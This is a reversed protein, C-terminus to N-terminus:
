RQEGRRRPPPQRNFMLRLERETAGDSSHLVFAGPSDGMVDEIMRAYFRDLLIRRVGPSERYIPLLQRLTEADARATRVLREAYGRAIAEVEAAAAEAGHEIRRQETMGERILTNRRSHAEQARDFAAQVAGPESPNKIREAEIAEVTLLEVGLPHGAEERFRELRSHLELEIRPFLERRNLVDTVRMGGVVKSTAARLMHRLVAESDEVGFRYALVSELDVPVAYRARLKMHVINMDGTLLYGDQRLDLSRVARVSGDEGGTWFENDLNVVREDTSISEVMEWPWRFFLGSGPTMVWMGRVRVLRGFRTKIRVESPGITFVGTLLWAAILVVIVVKLFLFSTKLADSLAKSGADEPASEVEAPEPALQEPGQEDPAEHNHHEEHAM